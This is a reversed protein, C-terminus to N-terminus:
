ALAEYRDIQSQCLAASPEGRDRAAYWQASWLIADAATLRSCWDLATRAATPDLSLLKMEPPSPAADQIWMRGAGLADGMAEAVEVVTAKETPEPGFNLARPVDRRAALAELYLLYGAVPELVHQWPRTSEPHRLAVPTGTRAARWVDPVLRDESWDGGGIVNGARATAVRAGDTATFFSSAYSAVALEAAAKSASYADHGGLPDSEVFDRGHDENKYVKDTTVILVAEVHKQGRLADLLHVTGMVNSAFTEVPDRYSARVLAQAAMHLVITPRAAAVADAVAGRDALDGIIEGDLVGDGVDRWLSPDTAPPLAFGTLVAGMRKLWLATWAGKFGTHGTLLVRRGHWFSPDPLTRAVVDEVAAIRKGM